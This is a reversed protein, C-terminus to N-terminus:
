NFSDFPHTPSYLSSISSSSSSVSFHFPLLVNSPLDFNDSTVVHDPSPPPSIQDLTEQTTLDTIDFAFTNRTDLATESHVHLIRSKFTSLEVGKYRLEDPKYNSLILCPVNQRKFRQFGKGAITMPSGDLFNNMFEVNKYARFEDFVILDYLDDQYCDYFNETQPPCYIRLYPLLLMWLYTKGINTPGSVYLQAQKHPRDRKINHHLWRVIQQTPPHNGAYHVGVWPLKDPISNLSMFQAYENLKRLHLLGFSPYDQCISHVTSGQQIKLAIEESIKSKPSDDLLQAATVPLTGFTAPDPDEKLIYKLSSLANRCARYDGHKSCLFDWYSPDRINLRKKLQLVIHLHPDGNAHKESAVCAWKLSKFRGTLRALVDQKSVDCQPFTLFFSKADMRFPAKPVNNNNM